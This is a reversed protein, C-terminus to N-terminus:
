KFEIRITEHIRLGLLKSANGQNIAIQL